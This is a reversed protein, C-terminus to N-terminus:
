TSREARFQVETNTFRVKITSHMGSNDFFVGDTEINNDKLISEVQGTMPPDIKVTSRVSSIQVAPSEGFFNPLTYIIGFVIAAAIILYKWLPYRNM